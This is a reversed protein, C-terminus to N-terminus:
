NESGESNSVIDSLSRILDEVYDEEKAFVKSVYGELEKREAASLDKATVVIVPTKEADKLKRFHILFEFGDMVPMMLDLLVVDPWQEKLLDLAVQGNGAVMAEVGMSGLAKSMVIQTAPDDEVVLVKGAPILKTGPVRVKV